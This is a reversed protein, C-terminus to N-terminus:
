STAGNWCSWIQGTPRRRGKWSNWCIMRLVTMQMWVCSMNRSAITLEGTGRFLRAAGPIMECITFDRMGRQRKRLLMGTRDTSCDDVFFVEFNKGTQRALCALFDPLFKEGNYVPVIVAIKM